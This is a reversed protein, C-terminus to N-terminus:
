HKAQYDLNMFVNILFIFCYSPSLCFSLSISDRLFFGFPPKPAHPASAAGLNKKM